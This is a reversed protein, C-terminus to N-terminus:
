KGMAARIPAIQDLTCNLERVITDNDKDAVLASVIQAMITREEKVKKDAEKEAYKDIEPRMLEFLSSAMTRDEKIKEFLKSNADHMAQVVAEALRKNEGQPMAYATSIVDRAKSETLKDTLASLWRFNDNDIEETIIVQCKIFQLDSIDYIGQHRRSYRIGQRDFWKLLNFHSKSVVMSLTVDMTRYRDYYYYVYSMAQYVGYENYGHDTPSKYELINNERFFEGIQNDIKVDSPKHIILLDVWLPDVNLNYEDYFELAPNDRLELRMAACFAPHWETKEM